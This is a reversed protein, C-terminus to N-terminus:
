MDGLTPLVTMEACHERLDGQLRPGAAGPLQLSVEAKQAWYSPSSQWWVELTGPGYLRLLTVTGALDYFDPLHCAMASLERPNQEESTLRKDEKRAVTGTKETNSHDAM